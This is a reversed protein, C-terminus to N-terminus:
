LWVLSRGRLFRRFPDVMEDCDKGTASMPRGVAVVAVVAGVGLHLLLLASQGIGFDKQSTRPYWLVEEGVTPETGGCRGDDRGFVVVVVVVRDGVLIPAAAAAVLATIGWWRWRKKFQVM